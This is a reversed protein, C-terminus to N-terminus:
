RVLTVNGRKTLNEGNDTVINLVYYFVDSNLEKNKYNGDWSKSPDSNIFLLEGWRNYISINLKKICNGYIMFVDNNGDNNPSFVNPIFLDSCIKEVTITISDMSTCGKSDTKIVYYKITASPNAVPNQCSTCSLGETPSWNFSGSGTASLTISSDTTITINTGADVAVVSYAFVTHFGSATCGNIDTGIVTYNGVPAQITSSTGGTPFWSYSNAGSATLSLTNGFCVSDDGTINVVPLQLITVAASDIKICGYISTVTVTYMKDTLSNVSVNSSTLNSLGISPSWAYSGGGGASLIGSSGSCYSLTQTLVGTPIPRIIVSASDIKVCGQSSIVSLTYVTNLTPTIVSVSTGTTSSLGSSPSWLYSVGNSSTTLLGSSGDCVSLTNTMVLTPLSNINVVSYVTDNKCHYSIIATVTHTGGASYPHLPMPLFSTDANGSAPDGFIWKINNVTTGSTDIISFPINEKECATSINQIQPRSCDYTNIILSPLGLVSKGSTLTFGNNIYNCGTGLVNPSNIVGLNTSDSKALYIKGDPALQLAGIGESKASDILTSSAIIAANTGAFLNLQYIKKTAAGAIYLRSADPSFEVGYATAYKAETLTIPNSLLGTQNDFDLIECFNTTTPANNIYTALALKKSDPSIKMQGISGFGLLGESHIIGVNSNVPTTVLGTSTLLYSVFLDTDVEHAVIWVNCSDEHLTATVKETVRAKLLINKTTVDGLGSQQSLDVISYRLGDTPDNICANSPMSFIYYLTCSGPQKVILTQTTSINGNLGFGNPMQAYSKNWVKIGDTYFLLAGNKDSVSACGENTNLTSGAVSVPAGGNFDMGANIGFNWFNFQKQSFLLSSFFLAFCGTTILKLYKQASFFRQM